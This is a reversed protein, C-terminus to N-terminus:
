SPRRRRPPRPRCLGAARDDPADVGKALRVPSSRPRSGTRPGRRRVEVTFLPTRPKSTLDTRAVGISAQVFRPGAAVNIDEPHERRPRFPPSRASATSATSRARSRRPRTGSTTAASATTSIRVVKTRQRPTAIGSVQGYSPFSASRWEVLDLSFPGGAIVKKTSQTTYVCVLRYSDITRVLKTAGDAICPMPDAERVFLLVNGTM